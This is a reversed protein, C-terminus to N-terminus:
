WAPVASTTQHMKRVILVAVYEGILVAVAGTGSSHWPELIWSTLLSNNCLLLLAAVSTTISAVTQVAELVQIMEEIETKDSEGHISNRLICEVHISINCHSCHYRWKKCRHTCGPADCRSSDSM